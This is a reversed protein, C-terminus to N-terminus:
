KLRKEEAEDIVYFSAYSTAHSLMDDKAPEPFDPLSEAKESGAECTLEEELEEETEEEFEEADDDEEQSEENVLM